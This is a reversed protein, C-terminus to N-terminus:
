ASRTVGTGESSMGFTRIVRQHYFAATCVLFDHPAESPGENTAYAPPARCTQSLLLLHASTGGASSKM